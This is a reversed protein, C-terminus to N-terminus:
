ATETLRDLVRVRSDVVNELIAEAERNDQQRNFILQAEMRDLQKQMRYQGVLAVALLVLALVILFSM